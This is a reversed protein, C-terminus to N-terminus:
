HYKNSSVLVLGYRSIINVSDRSCIITSVMNIRHLGSFFSENSVAQSTSQHKVSFLLTRLLNSLTTTWTVLHVNRAACYAHADNWSGYETLTSIWLRTKPHAIVTLLFQQASTQFTAPIYSFSTELIMQQQQLWSHVLLNIVFNSSPDYTWQNPVRIAIATDCLKICSDPCTSNIYFTFERVSLPIVQWTLQYVSRWEHYSTLFEGGDFIEWICVDLSCESSCNPTKEMSIDIEHASDLINTGGYQIHVVKYHFRHNACNQGDVILSCTGVNQGEINLAKLLLKNFQYNESILVDSDAPVRHVNSIDHFNDCLVSSYILKLSIHLRLAFVPM